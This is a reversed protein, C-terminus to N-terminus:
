KVFVQCLMFLFCVTFICFRLSTSNKFSSYFIFCILKLFSKGIKTKVNKRVDKRKHLCCAVTNNIYPKEQSKRPKM